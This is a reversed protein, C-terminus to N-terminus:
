SEVESESTAPQVGHSVLIITAPVIKEGDSTLDLRDGFIKPLMKALYWKRTDVRLRARAIHDYDPVVKGDDGTVWDKSRDDAIDLIGDAYVTAQVIRARAYNNSFDLIEKNKIEGKEDRKVHGLAWQIVTERRPMDDDKCIRNLSEGGAIRQCITLGIEPTYKTPRGRNAM